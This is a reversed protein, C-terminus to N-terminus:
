RQGIISYALHSLNVMADAMELLIRQDAEEAENRPAHALIGDRYNKALDLCWQRFDHPTIVGPFRNDKDVFVYDCEGQENISYLPGALCDGILELDGWVSEFRETIIKPAERRPNRFAFRFLQRFQDLETM